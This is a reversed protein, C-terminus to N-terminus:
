WGTRDSVEVEKRTCKPSRRVKEPGIGETGEPVKGPWLEVVTPKDAAVTPWAASLCHVLSM